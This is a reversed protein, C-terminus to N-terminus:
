PKRGVNLNIYCRHGPDGKTNKLINSAFLEPYLRELDEIFREISTREDMVRISIKGNV